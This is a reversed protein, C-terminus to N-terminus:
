KLWGDFGGLLRTRSMRVLTPRGGFYPNTLRPYATHGWRILQQVDKTRTLPTTGARGNRRDRRCHRSTSLGKALRGCFRIGTHRAAHPPESLKLASVGKSSSVILSFTEVGVRAVAFLSQATATRAPIVSFAQVGPCKLQNYVAKGVMGSHRFSQSGSDARKRWDRGRRMKVPFSKM